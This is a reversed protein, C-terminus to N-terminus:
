SIALISERQGDHRVAIPANIDLIQIRHAALDIGEQYEEGLRKL